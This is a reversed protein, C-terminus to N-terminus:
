NDKEQTRGANDWRYVQGDKDIAWPAGFKDTTICKFQIKKSATHSSFKDSVDQWKYNEGKKMLRFIRGNNTTVWPMNLSSIAISTIDESIKPFKIDNIEWEGQTAYGDSWGATPEIRICLISFSTLIAAVFLIFRISKM